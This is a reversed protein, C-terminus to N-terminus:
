LKIGSGRIIWPAIGRSLCRGRGLTSFEEESPHAFVVSRAQQLATPREPTMALGAEAAEQEIDSQSHGFALATINAMTNVFSIDQNTFEHTEKAYVRLSGIASGDLMVPIGLVSMIGAKAAMEPYQVRSDNSMDGIILPQQTTIESFSKNADMLGKRLYFQPLGWSQSHILKTRDSDLLVLSAGAKMSIATGRVVTDLKEKLTAASNLTAVARRVTKYYAKEKTLAM